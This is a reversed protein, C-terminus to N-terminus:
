FLNASVRERSRRALAENMAQFAARTHERTVDDHIWRALVGQFTEVQDLRTRADGLAELRFFHHTDHVGPFLVRGRWGLERGPDVTVLEVPLVMPSDWNRQIITIELIEGVVLAGTWDLLYPNWDAPSGVELLTRWVMDPPADIEISHELVFDPARQVAAKAIAIALGVVVVGIAGILVCILGIGSWARAKVAEVPRSGGRMEYGGEVRSASVTMADQTSENTCM